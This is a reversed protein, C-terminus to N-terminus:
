GQRRPAMLDPDLRFRVDRIKLAPLLTRTRELIQRRGSRSLESLWVSSDVFVTMIGQDVIGPRAHSAVGKGVIEAWLSVLRNLAHDQQVGIKQLLADVIPAIPKAEMFPLPPENDEIRGRERELEWKGKNYGRRRAM